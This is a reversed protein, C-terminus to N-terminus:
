RPGSTRPCRTSHPHSRAATSSASPEPSARTSARDQVAHRRDLEARCPRARWGDPSRRILQEIDVDATRAHASRRAARRDTSDPAQSFANSTAGAPPARGSPAMFADLRASSKRGSCSCESPSASSGSAADFYDLWRDIAARRRKRDLRLREDPSSRDEPLVGAECDARRAEPPRAASDDGEVIWAPPSDVRLRRARAGFARPALGQSVRDRGLGSDRFGPGHDTLDCLAPEVRGIWLARARPSWSAALRLEVNDVGNLARNLEAFALARESVDTAVLAARLALRARAQIGNGTGVDLARAVPKGCADAVRARRLLPLARPRLDCRGPRASRGFRDPRRRHSSRSRAASRGPKRAPLGAAVLLEAGPGLRREPEELPEGLLFVSVLAALPHREAAARRRAIPLSAADPLLGTEIQLLRRADDGRYGASVFVARLAQAAQRAVAPPGPPDNM